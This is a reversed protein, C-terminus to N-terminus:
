EAPLLDTAGLEGHGHLQRILLERKTHGIRVFTQAVAQSKDISWNSSL